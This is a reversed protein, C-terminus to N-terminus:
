SKKRIMSKACLYTGIYYTGYIIVIFLASIIMLKLITSGSGFVGIIDNALKLGVGSHVVLIFEM